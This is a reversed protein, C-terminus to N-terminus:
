APLNGGTRGLDGVRADARAAERTCEGAAPHLRDPTFALVDPPLQVLPRPREEVESHGAGELDVPIGAFPRAEPLHLQGHLVARAQGHGVRAAETADAELVLGLALRGERVQAEVRQEVKGPRAIQRAGQGPAAGGDLRDEEVLAEECAACTRWGSTPPWVSRGCVPRTSSRTPSGTASGRSSARTSSFRSSPPAAGPWPARWIARGPFTSCRTSAWTRSPRSASPTPNSASAVSAARTPCPWARATRWPWSWRGSARGKAPM